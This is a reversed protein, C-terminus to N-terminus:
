FLEGAEGVLEVGERNDEVGPSQTVLLLEKGEIGGKFKRIGEVENLPCHKCGRPKGKQKKSPINPLVFFKGADRARAARVASAPLCSTNFRKQARTLKAPKAPETDFLSRFGSM